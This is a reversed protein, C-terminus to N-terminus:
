QAKELALEKGKCRELQAPTLEKACIDDEEEILIANTNTIAISACLAALFLSFQM